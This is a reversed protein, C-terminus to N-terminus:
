SELVPALPRPRTEAGAANIHLMNELHLEPRPQGHTDLIPTFRNVFVRRSDRACEVAILDNARIMQERTKGARRAPNSRSAPLFFRKAIRRLAATMALVKEKSRKPRPIENSSM